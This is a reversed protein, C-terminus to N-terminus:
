MGCILRKPWFGASVSGYTGDIWIRAFPTERVGVEDVGSDHGMKILAKRHVAISIRTM